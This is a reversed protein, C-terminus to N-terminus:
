AAVTATHRSAFRMGAVFFGFFAAAFVVMSAPDAPTIVAAVTGCLTALVAWRAAHHRWAILPVTVALLIAILAIEVIGVQFWM